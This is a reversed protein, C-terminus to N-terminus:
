VKHCRKFVCHPVCSTGNSRVGCDFIGQNPVSIDNFGCLGAAPRYEERPLWECRPGKPAPGISPRQQQAVATISGLLVTLLTTLVINRTIM